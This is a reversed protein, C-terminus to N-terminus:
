KHWFRHGRRVPKSSDTQIALFCFSLWERTLLNASADTFILQRTYWSCDFSKNDTWRLVFCNVPDDPLETTLSLQRLMAERVIDATDLVKQACLLMCEFFLAM